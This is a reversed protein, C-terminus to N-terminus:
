ACVVQKSIRPTNRICHQIREDHLFFKFNIDIQRRKNTTYWFNHYKDELFPKGILGLLQAGELEEWTAFVILILFWPYHFDM